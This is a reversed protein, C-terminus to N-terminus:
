SFASYSYRVKSACELMKMPELHFGTIGKTVGSMESQIIAVNRELAEPSVLKRESGIWVQKDKTTM